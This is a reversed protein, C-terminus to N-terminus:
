RLVRLRVESTNNNERQERTSNESDVEVRIDYTGRDVNDFRVIVEM